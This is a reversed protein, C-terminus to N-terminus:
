SVGFVILVLLAVVGVFLTLSYQYTFGTQMRRIRSGIREPLSVLFRVMGDVLADDLFAIVSAIAQVPLVVLLTLVEDLYFRNGLLTAIPNPKGSFSKLFAPRTTSWAIAVGAIAIAASVLMLIVSEHPHEHTEFLFPIPLMYNSLGNTWFLLGGALVSGVALIGMPALMVPTAEHPHHGAEEPFKEAGYFTQFYARSTYVATLLATAIGMAFWISSQWGYAPDSTQGWLMALIGDKSWFGSLPPLGILAAGGVLFYFHTWPLVKRLGGFRRMDIVDGMAHMVNGASLFLLAKFFAHTLLHFMAAVIAFGLLEKNAGVGMVMFLYGLQSVTSYALLRKLDTQFVAILAGLLCTIAGLWGALVMVSPTYALLPSMRAILYVGATVMTAAHILASVPTPGEMADPLWVHLPFQASKGIAGLLLLFGVLTLLTPHQAAISPVANFITDFDLRGLSSQVEADTLGIAYWLTLIGALFGTDAVRNVLFAKLSANAASPKQYWFGILLYSCLGVGEWFAYLIVLNNALVLMSMCGVFGSFIAFFRAYGADGRMYGKSYIVVLLSICTVVSLQVLSIGDLRSAIPIQIEGFSLWNYGGDTRVNLGGSLGMLLCLSTIASIGLGIWAPIHGHQKGRGVAALVSCLVAGIIASLPILWVLPFPSRNILEHM